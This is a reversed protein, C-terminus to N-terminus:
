SCLPLYGSYLTSILLTSMITQKLVVDRKNGFCSFKIVSIIAIVFVSILKLTTIDLIAGSNKALFKVELVQEHTGEALGVFDCAGKTIHVDIMKGGTANFMKIVM